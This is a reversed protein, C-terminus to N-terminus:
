KQVKKRKKLIVVVVVVAVAVVLVAAGILLPTPDFPAKKEIKRIDAKAYALISSIEATNKAADIDQCAKEIREQVTKWNAASYDKASYVDLEAKSKARFEELVKQEDALTQIGDMKEVAANYAETVADVTSLKEFGSIAGSVIEELKSANADSYVSGDGVMDALIRRLEDAKEAKANRLDAIISYDTRKSADYSAPDMVFCPLYHATVVGGDGSPVTYVIYLTDGKALHIETRIYETEMKAKVMMERYILRDGEANETVYIYASHTAWQEDTIEDRQEVLFMMDEKATIKLITNNKATARWQWRFAFNEGNPDGVSDAPDYNGTGAFTTFPSLTGGGFFDGMLFQFDADKKSVVGGQAAVTESVIDGSLVEEKGDGSDETMNPYEARKKADYSAPDMVFWSSFDSTVVGGDGSPITYVIYLTDGQALHIETRVYDKEMKSKVMMERCLFRKGEANELVYTYASHTAWQEGIEDRQEVLFMMNEKATIKLVTNRRATARWQWRWAANEGNPDGVIDSPNYDGNGAFTTFPTLAGGRFFDGMLFQFDANAKSVAGGQAAVTESVIDGALVEEKQAAFGSLSLASLLLVAAMLVTITRVFSRKFQM